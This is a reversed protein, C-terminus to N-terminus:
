SNGFNWNNQKMNQTKIFSSVLQNISLLYLDLTKLACKFEVLQLLYEKNLCDEDASFFEVVRQMLSQINKHQLNNIPSNERLRDDNRSLLKTFAKMKNQFYNNSYERDNIAYESNLRAERKLIISDEICRITIKFIQELLCKFISSSLITKCIILKDNLIEFLGNDMLNTLNNAKNENVLQSQMFQCLIQLPIQFNQSYEEIRINLDQELIDNISELQESVSDNTLKNEIEDLLEIMRKYNNMLICSSITLETNSRSKLSFKKQTAHSFQKSIEKTYEFDNKSNRRYVKNFEKKVHASYAILKSKVLNVFCLEHVYNLKKEYSNFKLIIQLLEHLITFLDTVSPSCYNEISIFGNSTKLRKM